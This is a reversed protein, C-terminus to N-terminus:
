LGLGEGILAKFEQHEPLPSPSFLLPMVISTINPRNHEGVTLGQKVAIAEFRDLWDSYFTFNESFTEEKCLCYVRCIDCVPIYDNAGLAIVSKSKLFRYSFQDTQNLVYFLVLDIVEENERLLYYNRGRIGDGRALLLLAFVKRVRAETTAFWQLQGTKQLM